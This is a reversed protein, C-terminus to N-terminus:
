TAGVLHDDLLDAVREVEGPQVTAVVLDPDPAIWRDDRHDPRDVVVTPLGATRYGEVLILDVDPFLLAVIRDLPPTTGDAGFWAFQDRGVLATAHAGAERFRWSDKGETDLEIRHADHKIAGVRHGRVAMSAIVREILTTKGTGSPGVFSIMPPRDPDMATITPRVHVETM